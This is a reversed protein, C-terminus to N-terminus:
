ASSGTLEARVAAGAIRWAPFNSLGGYRIKGARVLDDFGALIEALPTVGDPFHPMLVDVHDTRLRRLSAEVSRIM